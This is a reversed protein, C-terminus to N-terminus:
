RRPTTSFDHQEQRDGTTVLLRYNVGPQLPDPTAGKVAPRMGPIRSGYTFTGVPISNSDSVLHWLPHAYKNTEIEAAVVVRVSSFRCFPDFNFVVPNGPSVTAPQRGRPAKTAWPSVRHSIHITPEAFWDRNLYVSLSGLGIIVILVFALKAKSM